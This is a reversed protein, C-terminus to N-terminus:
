PPEKKRVGTYYNRMRKVWSGKPSEKPSSKKCLPSRNETRLTKGNPMLTVLQPSYDPTNSLSKYTGIKLADSYSRKPSEKPTSKEVVPTATEKAVTKEMPMSVTLNPSDDPTDVTEQSQSTGTKLADKDSLKPSEQPNSSESVPSHIEQDM